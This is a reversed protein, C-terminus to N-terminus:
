LGVNIVEGAVGLHQGGRSAEGFGRVAPALDDALLGIDGGGM